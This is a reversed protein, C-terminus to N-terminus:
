FFNPDYQPRDYKYNTWSVISTALSVVVLEVIKTKAHPAHSFVFMM